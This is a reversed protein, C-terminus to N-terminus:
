FRLKFGAKFVFGALSISTIPYDLDGMDVDGEQQEAYLFTSNGWLGQPPNYTQLEQIVSTDFNSFSLSRYLAELTVILGGGMSIDFGAGAHYGITNVNSKMIWTFHYWVYDPNDTIVSRNPERVDVTGFYYGVGGLLNLGIGESLPLTFVGSFTIPYIESAFEPEYRFTALMVQNDRFVGTHGNMSKNIFGFGLALGFTPNLKYTFELTFDMGSGAKEPEAAQYSFFGTTSVAQGEVKGGYALGFSMKVALKNQARLHFPTLLLVGILILFAFKKMYRIGKNLSKKWFILL